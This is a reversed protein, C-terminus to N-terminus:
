SATFWNVLDGAGAPHDFHLLEGGNEEIMQSLAQNVVKSGHVPIPTAISVRFGIYALGLAMNLDLVDRMGAFCIGKLRDLRGDEALGKIALLPGQGKELILPQDVTSDARARRAMWLATDGWGAIKMNIGTLGTFLDGALGGFPLHPTDPGGILAIQDASDNVATKSFLAPSMIVRTLLGAPVDAFLDPHSSQEARTRAQKLIDKADATQDDAIVPVKMQKCLGIVGPDTGPGAVLLHIVGSSLLLEAEGSTVGIPMFRDDLQLWDGLSVLVASQAQENLREQELTDILQQSPRGSFGIRVPAEPIVGYGTNCELTDIEPSTSSKDVLALTLLGLRLAKQLFEKHSFSSRQLMYSAEFIESCSLENQQTVSLTKDILNGLAGSVVLGKSDACQPTEALARMAGNQCLRLITAAVMQERSLGCLGQTPGRGFPDIRCPGHMCQLPCYLGLRMFGDQPQAKEYREWPLDIGKQAASRLLHQSVPDATKLHITEM